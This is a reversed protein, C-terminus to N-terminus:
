RFRIAFQMLRDHTRMQNSSFAIRASELQNLLSLGDIVHIRRTSAPWPTASFRCLEPMQSKANIDTNTKHQISRSRDGTGWPGPRVWSRADFHTMRDRQQAM